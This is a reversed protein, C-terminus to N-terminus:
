LPIDGQDQWKRTLLKGEVHTDNPGTGATDAPAHVLTCLLRGQLVVGVDVWSLAQPEESVVHFGLPAEVNGTVHAISGVLDSAGTALSRYEYMQALLGVPM